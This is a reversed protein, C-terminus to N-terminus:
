GELGPGSSSRLNPPEAACRARPEALLEWVPYIPQTSRVRFEVMSGGRQCCPDCRSRETPFRTAGHVFLGNGRCGECTRVTAQGNTRRAAEAAALEIRDM